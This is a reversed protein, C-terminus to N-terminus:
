CTSRDLVNGIVPFIPPPGIVPLPGAALAGSVTYVYNNGATDTAWIYDITPTDEYELGTLVLPPAVGPALWPGVVVAFPPRPVVGTIPPGRAVSLSPPR